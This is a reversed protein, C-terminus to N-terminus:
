GKAAIQRVLDIRLRQSEAVWEATAEGQRILKRIVYVEGPRLTNCGRLRMAHAERCTGVVLHDPRVCRRRRCLAIVRDDPKLDGGTLLLAARQATISNGNLWFKPYGAGDVAATWDWCRTEMGLPYPGQKGIKAEFRQLDQAHM